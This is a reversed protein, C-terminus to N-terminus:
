PFDTMEMLLVLEILLFQHNFALDRLELRVLVPMDYNQAPVM